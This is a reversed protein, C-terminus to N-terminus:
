AGDDVEGTMLKLMGGSTRVKKPFTGAGGAGGAVDRAGAADITELGSLGRKEAVSLGAM